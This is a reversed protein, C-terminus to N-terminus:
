LTQLVQQRTCDAQIRRHMRPYGPFLKSQIQEASLEENKHDAILLGRRNKGQLISLHISKQPTRPMNFM